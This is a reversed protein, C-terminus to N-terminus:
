DGVRIAPSLYRTYTKDWSKLGQQICATAVEGLYRRAAKRTAADQETDRPFRGAFVKRARAELQIAIRKDTIVVELKQPPNEILPRLEEFDAMDEKAQRLEDELKQIKEAQEATTRELEQGRAVIQDLYEHGKLIEAGVTTPTQVTGM